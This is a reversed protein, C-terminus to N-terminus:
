AAWHDLMVRFSKHTPNFFSIIIKAGKPAIAGTPAEKPTVNPASSARSVPHGHINKTTEITHAKRASRALKMKGTGCDGGILIDKLSFNCSMSKSPANEPVAAGAQMLIAHFVCYMKMSSMRLSTKATLQARM